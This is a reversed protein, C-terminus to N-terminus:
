LRTKMELKKIDVQPGQVPAAAGRSAASWSSGPDPSTGWRVSISFEGRSTQCGRIVFQGVDKHRLLEEAASRSTNEQFWRCVPSCQQTSLERARGRARACLRLGAPIWSELLATFPLM